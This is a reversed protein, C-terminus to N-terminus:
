LNPNYDVRRGIDVKYWKDVPTDKSIGKTQEHLDKIWAHTDPWQKADGEELREVLTTALIWSAKRAEEYSPPADAQAAVPAVRTFSVLLCLVVFLSRPRM